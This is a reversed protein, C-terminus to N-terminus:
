VFLVIPKNYEPSEGLAKNVTKINLVFEDTTNKGKILNGAWEVIKSGYVTLLTIGVSMLTQFSFLSAALQGFVSKTPQGTAALEKNAIKLKNIEDILMPLNNSIAMFGTNLSNAFAPMERTLQNISNSLSNFGSKAKGASSNVRDVSDSIGGLTAASNGAEVTVGIKVNNIADM